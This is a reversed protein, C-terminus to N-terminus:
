LGRERLKELLTVFLTAGPGAFRSHETKYILGLGLSINHITPYKNTVHQLMAALEDITLGARLWGFLNVQYHYGQELLMDIGELDVKRIQTIVSGTMENSVRVEPYVGCVVVKNKYTEMTKVKEGLEQILAASTFASTTFTAGFGTFELLLVASYKACFAVAGEFCLGEVGQGQGRVREWTFPGVVAPNEKDLFFANELKQTVFSPTYTLVDTASPPAAPSDKFPLYSRGLLFAGKSLQTFAQLSALDKRDPERTTDVILLCPPVQTGQNASVAQQNSTPLGAFLWGLSELALTLRTYEHELEQPNNSIVNQYCLFPDKRISELNELNYQIANEKNVEPTKDYLLYENLFATKLQSDPGSFESCNESFKLSLSSFSRPHEIDM